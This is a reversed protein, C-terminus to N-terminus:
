GREVNLSRTGGDINIYGTIVYKSAKVPTGDNNVRNWEGHFVKEEGPMIEIHTENNAFSFRQNHASYRWVEMPVTSFFLHVQRQVIFDLAPSKTFKLAIRHGSMNYLSMQLGIPKGPESDYIRLCTYLGGSESAVSEGQMPKSSTSAFRVIGLFGVFMVAIAIVLTRLDRKSDVITTSLQRARVPKHQFGTDDEALINTKTGDVM